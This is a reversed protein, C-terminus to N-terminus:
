LVNGEGTLTTKRPRGPGRVRVCRALAAEIENQFRPDGLAREQEIHARISAIEETSITARCLERYAAAREDRTQGLADYVDHPRILIDTQGLANHRYSSWRYDEASAVMRARLPNFEIYRYCTLLYRETDILSSKFRGEWLTGSRRYVGNIYRVYRRGLAQMMQSVAGHTAGTVLLHVHNTMLVYAHIAVGSSEAATQLAERYAIYDEDHFFSPLRNNGRQIVHLPLGPLDLRPRRAM